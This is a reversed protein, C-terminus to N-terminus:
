AQETADSSALLALALRLGGVIDPINGLVAVFCHREQRAGSPRYGCPGHRRQTGQCYERYQWPVRRAVFRTAIASAVSCAQSSVLGRFPAGAPRRNRLYKSHKTSVSSKIACTRGFSSRGVWSPLQCALRSIAFVSVPTARRCRRIESSRGMRRSLLSWGIWRVLLTPVPGAPVPNSASSCYKSGQRPRTGCPATPANRLKNPLPKSLTIPFRAWCHSPSSTAMSGIPSDSRGATLTQTEGWNARPAWTLAAFM